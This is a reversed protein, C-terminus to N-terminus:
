SPHTKARMARHSRVLGQGRPGTIGEAHLGQGGVLEAMRQDKSPWLGVLYRHFSDYSGGNRDSHAILNRIHKDLVQSLLAPTSSVELGPLPGAM